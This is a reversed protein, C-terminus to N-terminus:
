LNVDEMIELLEEYEKGSRDGTSHMLCALLLAEGTVEFEGDRLWAQNIFQTTNDKIKNKM